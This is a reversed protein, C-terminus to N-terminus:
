PLKVNTLVYGKGVMGKADHLAKSMAIYRKKSTKSKACDVSIGWRIMVDFGSDEKWGFYERVRKVSEPYIKEINWGKPLFTLYVFFMMLSNQTPQGKVSLFGKPLTVKCM